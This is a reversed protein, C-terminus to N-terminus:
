YLEELSVNFLYADGTMTDSSNNGVRDLKIRYNEVKKLGGLNDANFRLLSEQPIGHTPAAFVGSISTEYSMSFMDNDENLRALSARWLVNGTDASQPTWALRLQIDRGTYNEPTVGDFYATEVAAADFALFDYNNSSVLAANGVSPLNGDDADYSGLINNPHKYNFFDTFKGSVETDFDLNPAVERTKHGGPYLVTIAGQRIPQDNYIKFTSNSGM